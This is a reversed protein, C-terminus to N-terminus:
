RFPWCRVISFGGIRQHVSVPQALPHHPAPLEPMTACVCLVFKEAGPMALMAQRNPM